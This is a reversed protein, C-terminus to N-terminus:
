LQCGSLSSLTAHTFWLAGLSIDEGTSDAFYCPGLTTSEKVTVQCSGGSTFLSDPPYNVSILDTSGSAWDSEFSAETLNNGSSVSSSNRTAQKLLSTPGCSSLVSGLTFASLSGFSLKLLRRRNYQKLMEKKM